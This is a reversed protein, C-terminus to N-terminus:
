KKQKIFNMTIKKESLSILEVKYLFDNVPM